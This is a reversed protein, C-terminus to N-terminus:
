RAPDPRQSQQHAERIADVVADPEDIQVYESSHRTFLQRANSSLELWRAQAQAIQQQFELVKDNL